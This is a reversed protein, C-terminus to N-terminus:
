PTSHLEEPKLIIPLDCLFDHPISLLHRELGESSSVKIRAPVIPNDEELNARARNRGDIIFDCGKVRIVDIPKMPGQYESFRDIKKRKLYTGIALASSVDVNDREIDGPYMSYDKFKAM